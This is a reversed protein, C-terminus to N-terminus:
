DKTMIKENCTKRVSVSAGIHVICSTSQLCQGRIPLYKFEVVEQGRSAEEQSLLQNVVNSVGSRCVSLVFISLSVALSASKSIVRMILM